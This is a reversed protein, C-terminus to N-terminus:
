GLEVYVALAYVLLRITMRWNRVAVVVSFVDFSSNFYIGHGFGFFRTQLEYTSVLVFANREVRVPTTQFADKALFFSEFCYSFSFV